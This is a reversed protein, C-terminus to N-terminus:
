CRSLQGASRSSGNPFPWEPVTLATKQWAECAAYNEYRSANWARDGPIDGWLPGVWFAFHVLVM